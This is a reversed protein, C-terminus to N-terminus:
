LLSVEAVTEPAAIWKQAGVLALEDRGAKATAAKATAALVDHVIAAATAVAPVTEAGAAIEGLILGAMLDGTGNVRIDLKATEVRVAIEGTVVMTAALTDRSAPASTVIVTPRGLSRAMDVIEGLALDLAEGIRDPAALAALETVNPTVIDAMPLLQARIEDLILPDVYLQGMDGVIPDLMVPIGQAYARAEAILGAIAAAQPALAIYGALVADVPHPKPSVLIDRGVTQVDPTEFRSVDRAHGPHHALIVTPLAVVEHGRRMLPFTTASNGVHGRAVSSSITLITAV